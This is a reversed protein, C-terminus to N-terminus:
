GHPELMMQRRPSLAEAIWALGKATIRVQESIRDEGSPEDRFVHVKHTLMGSAVKDQYGIFSGKGPRRYIWRRDLLWANLAHPAVQLSKAADRLCLSGNAECLTEFAAVKPADEEIRHVLAKSREELEVRKEESELAIRLLGARDMSLYPNRAREVLEYFARVLRVKFARVVDNNRMFTILLTAQQENLLAVERQQAGGATEFSRTEFAVRGFENLDSINARVLELVNKHQIETGEAIAMSTTVPTDGCMSVLANM